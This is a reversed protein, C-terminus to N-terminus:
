TTAAQKLALRELTTRAVDNRVYLPGAEDPSVLTGDRWAQVGLAAIDAADAAARSVVRTAIGAMADGHVDWANGGGIDVPGFADLAIRLQDPTDLSPGAVVSMARGEITFLSWYVEGMRADHAVLLTKPRMSEAALVSHGIADLTGIAAVRLDAGFALGQAAACAVRLGTFSGPGAGFALVDCDALARGADDLVAEVMGLLHSSHANGVEM